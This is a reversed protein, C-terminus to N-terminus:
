LALDDRQYAVEALGLHAVGTGALTLPDPAAANELTQQYTALAEDLRGQACRIQALYSRHLAAVDSSGAAQWREINSAFAREAEKLRGHLWQAMALNTHALGDLMWQGEGREALAKAVFKTTAEADGRLYAAYARGFAIAAPVNALRSAALGVSPEFPEDATDQYAREAADLLEQVGSVRSRRIAAGAQAVLLRPRSSALEDPLASIWRRVTAGDRTVHEDFYREALRAAWIADGAALAHRVADDALGQGDHW